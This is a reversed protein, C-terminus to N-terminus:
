LIYIKVNIPTFSHILPCLAYIYTVYETNVSCESKDQMQIVNKCQDNDELFSDDPHLFGSGPRCFEETM